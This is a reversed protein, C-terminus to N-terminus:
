YFLSDWISYGSLIIFCLFLIIATSLKFLFEFDKFDLYFRADLFICFYVIPWLVNLPFTAWVGINNNVVGMFSFILNTTIFFVFVYVMDKKIPTIIYNRVNILAFGILIILLSIKVEKYSFPLAILMTFFVIFITKKVIRMNIIFPNSDLFSM